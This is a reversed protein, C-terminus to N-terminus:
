SSGSRSPPLAAATLKEAAGEPTSMDCLAGEVGPGRRGTNNERVMPLLKLPPQAWVTMPDKAEAVHQWTKQDIGM